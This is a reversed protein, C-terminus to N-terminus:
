AISCSIVHIRCSCCILIQINSLYISFVFLFIAVDYLISTTLQILRSVMELGDSFNEEEVTAILQILKSKVKKAEKGPLVIRLRMQARDIAMTETERLKRIVELAKPLSTIFIIYILKNVKCRERGLVKRM